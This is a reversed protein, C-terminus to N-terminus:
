AAEEKEVVEFAGLIMDVAKQARGAAVVVLKPDDSLRSRWGEIYSASNDLTQSEIGCIGCLFSAGMEAVLEESAYEVTGRAGTLSRNLRSEHGTAHVLEHFLSSYYDASSEFRNITPVMVRDELFLYRPTPVDMVEIRPCGSWSAVIKEAEQIPDNPRNEIWRDIKAQDIGDCQEINFVTYYRLIPFSAGKKEGEAKEGEIKKKLIKWFIVMHGREGRRVTGGLANAQKYTLFLPVKYGLFALLFINVGRYPKGTVANM